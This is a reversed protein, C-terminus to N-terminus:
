EGIEDDDNADLLAVMEEIELMVGEFEPIHAELAAMEGAYISDRTRRQQFDSTIRAFADDFDKEKVRFEEWESSAKLDDYPRRLETLIEEEIVNMPLDLYDELHYRDIVAVSALFEGRSDRFKELQVRTIENERKPDSSLLKALEVAERGLRLASEGATDISREALVSLNFLVKERDVEAPVTLNKGTGSDAPIGISLEGYILGPPIPVADIHSPFEGAPSEPIELEPKIISEDPATEIDPEPITPSEEFPIPTEGILTEEKISPDLFITERTNEVEGPPSFISIPNVLIEVPLTPENEPDEEEPVPSEVILPTEEIGGVPDSISESEQLPEYVDPKPEPGAPGIFVGEIVLDDEGPTYYQILEAWAQRGGERSLAYEEAVEIKDALSRTVQTEFKKVTVDKYNLGVRNCADEFKSISKFKTWLFLYAQQPGGEGRPVFGYVTLNDVIYPAGEIKERRSARKAFDESFATFEEGFEPHSTWVGAHFKILEERAEHEDFLRIADASALDERTKVVPNLNAQISDPIVSLLDQAKDFKFEELYKQAAILIDYAARQEPLPIGVADPAFSSYFDEFFASTLAEDSPEPMFVRPAAAQVTICISLILVTLVSVSWLNKM